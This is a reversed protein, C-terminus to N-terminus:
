NYCFLLIKKTRCGKHEIGITYCNCIKLIFRDNSHSVSFCPSGIDSIDINFVNLCVTGKIIYM